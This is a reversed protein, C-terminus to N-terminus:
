PAATSHRHRRFSRERYLEGIEAGLIFVISTYYIWLISIIIFVYAGYVRKLSLFDGIYIGFLYEALWWFLAGWLASVIITKLPLHAQPVFYYIIFFAFAIIIYSIVFVILDGIIQIHLFELIGVKKAIDVLGALGPIITTALLFYFLVLFVMGFDRLKAVIGSFLSGKLRAKYSINLITRMSAFLRSSALLLGFIGLIGTLSKNVKFEQARAFVVEKIWSAADPYPIIRNISSNIEIQIQPNELVFGLLSFIILVFPVICVIISFALGGAQLFSHNKDLRSYIGGVYYGLFERTKRWNFYRRIKHWFKM